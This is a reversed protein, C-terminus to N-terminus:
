VRWIEGNCRPLKPLMPGSTSVLLAAFQIKLIEFGHLRRHALRLRRRRRYRQAETMRRCKTFLGFPQRWKPQRWRKGAGIALANNIPTTRLDHQDTVTAFRMDCLGRREREAAALCAHADIRVTVRADNSRRPRRLRNIGDRVDHVAGGVHFPVGCERHARVQVLVDFREGKRM